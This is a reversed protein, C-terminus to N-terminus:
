RIEREMFEGCWDDASVVPWVIGESNGQGPRPAHRRCRVINHAALRESYECHVCAPGSAHKTTGYPTIDETM